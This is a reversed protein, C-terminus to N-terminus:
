KAVGGDSLTAQRARWEKANRTEPLEVVEVRTLPARGYHKWAVIEVLQADDRWFIGTLADMCLKTLNDGDPRSTHQVWQALAAERRWAPWSVPVPFFFDLTLSIPGELPAPPRYEIAQARFNAKQKRSEADDMVRVFGGIKAARPRGQAHPLGHVEFSIDPVNM